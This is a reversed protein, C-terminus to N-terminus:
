FLAQCMTPTGYGAERAELEEARVAQSTRETFVQVLQSTVERGPQARPIPGKDGSTGFGGSEVRSLCGNRGPPFAFPGGGGGGGPVEGWFSTDPTFAIQMEMGLAAGMLTARQKRTRLGSSKPSLSSLEWVPAGERPWEGGLPASPGGRELCPSSHLRTCCAGWEGRFSHFSVGTARALPPGLHPRPPRPAEPGERAEPGSAAAGAEMRRAARSWWRGRGPRGAAWRVARGPGPGTEARRPPLGRGRVAPAEPSGAAAPEPSPASPCRFIRLAAPPPPAPDFAGSGPRPLPHPLGAIGLGPPPPTPRVAACPRAPGAPRPCTRGCRSASTADGGDEGRLMPEPRPIVAVVVAEDEDEAEECKLTVEFCDLAAGEAKLAM